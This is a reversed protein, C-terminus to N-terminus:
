IAFGVLDAWAEIAGQLCFGQAKSVISWCSSAKGGGPFGRGDGAGSDKEDVRLSILGLTKRMEEGCSADTDASFRRGDPL